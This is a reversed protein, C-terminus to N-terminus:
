FGRRDDGIRDGFGSGPPPIPRWGLDFDYHDRGPQPDHVRVRATFGNDPNPQQIIRVQGRGDWHRLYVYIPLRPLSGFVQNNINSASKGHVTDTRVDGGHISVITTDDVDGSWTMGGRAQAGAPITTGCVATLLTAALFFPQGLIKM